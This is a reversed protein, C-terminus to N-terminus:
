GEIEFRDAYIEHRKVPPLDGEVMAADACSCFPETCDPWTWSRERVIKRCHAPPVHAAPPSPPRTSRKRSFLRAAAAALARIM